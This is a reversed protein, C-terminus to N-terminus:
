LRRPPPGCRGLRRGCRSELAFGCISIALQPRLDAPVLPQIVDEVVPSRPRPAVVRELPLQPVQLGLKGVEHSGVAGCLADPILGGGLKRAEGVWRRHQAQVVGVTLVLQPLELRPDEPQTPRALCPRCPRASSRRGTGPGGSRSRAGRAPRSAPRRPAPRRRSEWRGLSGLWGVRAGPGPERLARPARALDEQGARAEVGDVPIALAASSSGKAFGRFAAAPVIFVRSGLTTAPRPRSQKM